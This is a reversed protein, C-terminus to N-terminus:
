RVGAGAAPRRSLVFGTVTVAMLALAAALGLWGSFPFVPGAALAGARVSEEIGESGGVVRLQVPAGARGWRSSWVVAARVLDVIVLLGAAVVLPRPVRSRRWALGLILVLVAVAVWSAWSWFALRGHWRLVVQVLDHYTVARRVGWGFGITVVAGGAIMGAGVVAAAEVM